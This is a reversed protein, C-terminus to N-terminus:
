KDALRTWIIKYNDFQKELNDKLSLLTAEDINCYEIELGILHDDLCWGKCNIFGISNDSTLKTSEGFENGYNMLSVKSLIKQIRIKVIKETSRKIEGANIEETQSVKFRGKEAVRIIEDKYEKAWNYNRDYTM